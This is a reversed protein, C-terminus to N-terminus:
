KNDNNKIDRYVNAKQLVIKYLTENEWCTQRPLEDLCACVILHLENSNTTKIYQLIEDLNIMIKHLNVQSKIILLGGCVGLL